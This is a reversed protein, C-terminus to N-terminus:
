KMGGDLFCILKPVILTATYDYIKRKHNAINLGFSEKHNYDYVFM